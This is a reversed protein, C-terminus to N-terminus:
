AAGLTVGQALLYASPNTPQGNVTVEFHLHCGTSSGAGLPDLTADGGMAAIQAGTTVHDGVRVRTTGTLVHGYRTTVGGGHDVIIQNGTRGQHPGPAAWIVVGDAAALVPTGCRNAVDNGTHLAPAGTIPHIRPGFPSTHQGVAPNTWGQATVAPSGGPGCSGIDAVPPGTSVAAARGRPLPQTLAQIVAVADPWYPAYHHPDANRQVRHAAVTPPLSQWHEVELLARYFNTAATAPNMRDAYSGWAGNARQQFLGRSDPGVADGRDVNILSSEGMATMVALTQGHVGVGLREGAIVIQAANSLQVGEYAGVRDPPDGAPLVSGGEIGGGCVSSAGASSEAGLVIMGVLAAAAPGGAVLLALVGLLIVARKM